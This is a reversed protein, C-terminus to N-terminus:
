FKDEVQERVDTYHDSLYWEAVERYEENGKLLLFLKTCVEELESTEVNLMEEVCTLLAKKTALVEQAAWHDPDNMAAETECNVCTGGSVPDRNYDEGDDDRWCDGDNSYYERKCCPCSQIYKPKNAELYEDYTVYM